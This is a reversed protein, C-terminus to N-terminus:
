FQPHDSANQPYLSLNSCKTDPSGTQLLYTKDDVDFANEPHPPCIRHDVLLKKYLM